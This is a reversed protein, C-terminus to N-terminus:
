VQDSGIMTVAPMSNEAVLRTSLLAHMFLAEDKIKVCISDPKCPLMNPALM